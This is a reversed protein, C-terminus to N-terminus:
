GKARVRLGSRAVLAELTTTKGSLQTQGTVAVHRLPIAVPKGTEVEYGLPITTERM